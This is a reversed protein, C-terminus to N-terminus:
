LKLTKSNKDQDNKSKKKLNPQNKTFKIFNTSKCVYPAVPVARHGGAGSGGERFGWPRGLSSQTLTLHKRAPIMLESLLVSVSGVIGPHTSTQSCSLRRQETGGQDKIKVLKVM